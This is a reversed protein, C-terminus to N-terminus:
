DNPRAPVLQKPKDIESTRDLQLFQLGFGLPSLSTMLSPEESALLFDDM